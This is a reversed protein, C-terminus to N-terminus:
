KILKMVLPVSLSIGNAMKALIHYVDDAEQNNTCPISIADGYYPSYNIRNGYVGSVFSYDLGDTTTMIVVVHDDGVMGSELYDCLELKQQVGRQCIWVERYQHHPYPNCAVDNESVFYMTGWNYSQFQTTQKHAEWVEEMCFTHKNVWLGDNNLSDVIGDRVRVVRLTKTM